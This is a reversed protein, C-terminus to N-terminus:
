EATLHVNTIVTEALPEEEFDVTIRRIARADHARGIQFACDTDGTPAQEGPHEEM